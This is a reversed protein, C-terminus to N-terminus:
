SEVWASILFLRTPPLREGSLPFLPPVFPAAAKRGTPVVPYIM